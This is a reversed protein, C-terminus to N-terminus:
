RTKNETSKMTKTTKDKKDSGVWFRYGKQVLKYFWVVHLVLLVSLLSAFCAREVTEAIFCDQGEACPFLLSQKVDFIISKIVVSSLIWLRWYVWNM